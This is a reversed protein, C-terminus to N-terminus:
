HLPYRSPEIGYDNTPKIADQKHCLLIILKNHSESVIGILQLQPARRSTLLKIYCTIKNIPIQYLLYFSNSYNNNLWAPDTM